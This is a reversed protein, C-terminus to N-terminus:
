QRSDLSRVLKVMADCMTPGSANTFPFQLCYKPSQYAAYSRAAIDHADPLYGIRGNAYGVIMLHDLGLRNRVDLALSSFFESGNAVIALEGIQIVQVETKLTEPRTEWDKLIEFTWALNFRCMARVALWEDGGHRAIMEEPNNTMVKGITDQWGDVDIERLRRQAEDRDKDIEQRTWRRTPLTVTESRFGLTPNEILTSNGQAALALGATLCGPERCREPTSFTRHFNVDGASGQLYLALADPHAAEIVDCVDGPVDRSVAFPRLKAAVTPHAQFNVVFALPNGNIRNIRLTTLTPDVSGNERTRNFTQGALRTSATAVSVPERSRDAQIIATATQEIAWQTYLENDEGVGLYGGASPANHTHTAAILIANPELETESAVRERVSATFAEDVVMLDVSVIALRTEENDIVLATAHLNDHVTQWKRELYYGWGALEVGWFPTLDTRSAGATLNM